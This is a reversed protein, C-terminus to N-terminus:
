LTILEPQFGSNEVHFAGMGMGTKIGVGSYQGFEALLHIIPILEKDDFVKFTLKGIFSPIKAGALNFFTSRINYATIRVHEAIREVLESSSLANKEDCADYKKILNGFIRKVGPFNIYKGDSKFAAPSVLEISVSPDLRTCVFTKLFDDFSFESKSKGIVKLKTGTAYISAEQFSPSLLAESINKICDDNLANVTWVINKGVPEMYQSYSHLANSHLSEAYNTDIVSMLIGQLVSSLNFNYIRNTDATMIIKTQCLM